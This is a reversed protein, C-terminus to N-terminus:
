GRGRGGVVLAVGVAAALLWGLASSKGPQPWTAGCPGSGADGWVAGMGADTRFGPSAMFRGVPLSKPAFYNGGGLQPPMYPVSPGALYLPGQPTDRVIPAQPISIRPEPALQPITTDTGRVCCGSYEAQSVNLPVVRPAATQRHAGGIGAAPNSATVLRKRADQVQKAVPLGFPVFSAAPSTQLVRAQGTIAANEVDTVIQRARAAEAPTVPDMSNRPLPCTPSVYAM